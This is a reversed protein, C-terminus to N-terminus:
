RTVEIQDYGNMQEVEDAAAILARGFQRAHDSTSVNLAERDDDIVIIHRTVDGATGQTGYIEVSIDKDLGDREIVWSSGAFYRSAHELGAQLDDWECVRAAGAPHPVNPYPDTTTPTTM